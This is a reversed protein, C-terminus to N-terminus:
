ENPCHNLSSRKLSAIIRVISDDVKREPGHCGRPWCVSKQIDNSPHFRVFRAINGFSFVPARAASSNDNGRRDSRKKGVNLGEELYNQLRLGPPYFKSNEVSCTIRTNSDMAKLHLLIGADRILRIKPVQLRESRKERNDSACYSMWTQRQRDFSSLSSM